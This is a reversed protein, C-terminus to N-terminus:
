SQLPYCSDGVFDSVAGFCDFTRVSHSNRGSTVDIGDLSLHLAVDHPDQFLGLEGVLYDRFLNGDFVDRFLRVGNEINTNM